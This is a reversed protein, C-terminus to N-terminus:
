AISRIHGCKARGIIETRAIERDTQGMRIRHMIQRYEYM